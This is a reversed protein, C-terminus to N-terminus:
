GIAFCQFLAFPIAMRLIDHIQDIQNVSKGSPRWSEDTLDQCEASQLLFSGNQFEILCRHQENGTALCRLKRVFLDAPQPVVDIGTTENKCSSVTVALSKIDTKTLQDFAHKRLAIRRQLPQQTIM